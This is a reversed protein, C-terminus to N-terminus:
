PRSGGGNQELKKMIGGCASSCVVTFDGEAIGATDSLLTQHIVRAADAIYMNHKLLAARVAESDHHLQRDSKGFVGTIERSTADIFRSVDNEVMSTSNLADTFFVHAFLTVWYVDDSTPATSRGSVLRPLMQMLHQFDEIAHNANPTPIDTV